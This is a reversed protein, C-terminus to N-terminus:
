PALFPKLALGLPTTSTIDPGPGLIIYGYSFSLSYNSVFVLASSRDLSPLGCAQYLGSNESERHKNIGSARYDTSGSNIIEAPLDIM